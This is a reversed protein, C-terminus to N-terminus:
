ITSCRDTQPLNTQFSIQDSKRQVSDRRHRLGDVALRPGEEEEQEQAPSTLLLRRFKGPISSTVQRHAEPLRCAQRKLVDM